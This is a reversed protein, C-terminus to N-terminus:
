NNKGVLIDAIDKNPFDGQPAKRKSMKKNRRSEEILTTPTTQSDIALEIEKRITQVLTSFPWRLM